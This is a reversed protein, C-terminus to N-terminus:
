KKVAYKLIDSLVKAPSQDANIVHVLKKGYFSLVPKTEEEYTKPNWNADRMAQTAASMGYIIFDDVRRQEKPEMWDDANFAESSGDRPASNYLFNSAQIGGATPMNEVVINPHGPLFRSLDIVRFGELKM